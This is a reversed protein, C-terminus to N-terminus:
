HSPPMVTESGAAKPVLAKEFDPNALLSQTANKLANSLAQDYHEANLSGGSVTAEGSVTGSWVTNGLKDQVKVLEVIKANYDPSEMAWFVTLTMSILLDAEDSNAVVNLGHSKLLNVTTDHVWDAATPTGALIPVATTPDQNNEGIKNKDARTDDVPLLYVKGSGPPVTFLASSSETPMYLMPVTLSTPQPQCAATSILFAGVLGAWAIRRWAGAWVARGLGGPANIKSSQFGNM